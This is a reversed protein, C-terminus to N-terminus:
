KSNKDANNIQKIKEKRIHKKINPHNLILNEIEERKQDTDFDFMYLTIVEKILDEHKTPNIKHRILMDSFWENFEDYRKQVDPHIQCYTFRDYFNHTFKTHRIKPKINIGKM